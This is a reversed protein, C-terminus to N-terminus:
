PQSAPAPPKARSERAEPHGLYMTELEDALPCPEVGVERGAVRLARSQEEPSLTHFVEWFRRGKESQAEYEAWALTAGVVSSEPVLKGYDNYGTDRIGAREMAHCANEMDKKYSTCASALLVTLGIFCSSPLRLNM